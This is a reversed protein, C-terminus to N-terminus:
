CLHSSISALYLVLVKPIRFPLWLASRSAFFAVWILDRNGVGDGKMSSYRSCGRLPFSTSPWVRLKRM